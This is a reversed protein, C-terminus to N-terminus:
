YHLIKDLDEEKYFFLIFFILLVVSVTVFIDAVNFVPFDILKFYFFDIVYGLRMRDISNGIAGGAIMVACIRLPLFHKNMPIRLYLVIIFILIVVASALFFIQQNQFLGFAAGKNELYYLEFVGPFLVLPAKGKLYTVALYKTWQDLMVCASILFIASFYHFLRKTKKPKM